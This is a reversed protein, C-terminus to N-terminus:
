FLLLMHALTTISHRLPLFDLTYKLSYNIFIYLFRKYSSVRNQLVFDISEVKDSDSVWSSLTVLIIGWHQEATIRCM